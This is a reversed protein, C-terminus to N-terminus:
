SDIDDFNNSVSASVANRRINLEDSLVKMRRTTLPYFFVAVASIVAVCAPLFSMLAWLCFVAEEPQTWYGGSNEYGCIGLLWLVGAGGIAGGFKQAMSSSSFILGTSSSHFKHESYDACDAYMAWILPSLIGTLVSIVIQLILMFFMGMPSVPMFFFAVSLAALLINVVMYTTKKGIMDVIPVALAVGIINGVEGISLFLGSYFLVYIGFLWMTAGGGIVDAFFYAVTAGRLTNFLNSNLALLILIWWPKNSFLSKFDHGVGVSSGTHVVEKTMLFCIIFLAFCIVAIFIMAAQWSSTVSMEFSNQCLSCLPEWVALAFFSGTYAFFMRFSSYVTKEGPDRTIVGLMAAYPVNIGTYVTMMLVYTFCAWFLKGAYDFNPTTFLLVGCIAFPAAFWLLYPRYKGMKTNTRDAIVGMMLDSVADWVRTALVLIGADVLTLGFVNSYFFPLYYSFIKWFMSTAMDGFGYGIKRSLNRMM